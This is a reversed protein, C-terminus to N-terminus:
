PGRGIITSSLILGLCALFAMAGIGVATLAMWVDGHVPADDVLAEAFHPMAIAPPWSVDPAMSASNGAGVLVRSRSAAGPVSLAQRCAPCRFRQGARGNSLKIRAGCECTVRQMM